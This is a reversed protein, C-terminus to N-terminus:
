GKIAIEAFNYGFDPLFLKELFFIKTLFFKSIVNKIMFQGKDKFQGNEPTVIMKLFLGKNEM